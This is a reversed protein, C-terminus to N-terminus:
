EVQEIGGLDTVILFSHLHECALEVIHLLTQLRFITFLFVAVRFLQHFSQIRRAQTHLERQLINWFNHFSNLLLLLQM